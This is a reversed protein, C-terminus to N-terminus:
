VSERECVCDICVVEGAAFFSHSAAFCVSVCLMQEYGSTFLDHLVFTHDSRQIEKYSSFM